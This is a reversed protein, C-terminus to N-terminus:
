LLSDSPGHWVLISQIWHRCLNFAADQGSCVIEQNAYIQMVSEASAEILLIYKSIPM